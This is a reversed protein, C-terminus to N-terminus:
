KKAAAAPAPAAKKCTEEGMSTWQGNMQAESTHKFSGDANKIFTDRAQMKQGMMSGEGTYVVKDGDWGPSTQQAYGGMNDMWLMVYQKAAADYTIHFMGEMSMAPSSMSVTGAQWFGNMATHSKVASKTKQAPGMPTAPSDGNCTWSGDFFKLQAMEPAPKPAAMAAGEAPKAAAKAAPKAAPKEAPKGGMQAFTCPAAALVAACLVGVISRVRM